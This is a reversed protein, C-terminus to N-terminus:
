ASSSSAVPAQDAVVFMNTSVAVADTVAVAVLALFWTRRARIRKLLMQDGWDGALRQGGLRRPACRTRAGSTGRVPEYRIKPSEVRGGRPDWTKLEPRNKM